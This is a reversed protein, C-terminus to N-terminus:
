NIILAVLFEDCCVDSSHKDAIFMTNLSLSLIKIKFLKYKFPVCCLPQCFFERVFAPCLTTNILQQLLQRLCACNVPPWAAASQATGASFFVSIRKKLLERLSDSIKNQRNDPSAVLFMKEDVFFVFDTASQPFQQLLLKTRKMRAACKADTLELARRRKFCKV